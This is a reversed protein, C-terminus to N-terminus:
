GIRTRTPDNAPSKSYYDNSYWDACWEMANGHMDYLGWANPAFSGVPLTTGLMQGKNCGGSFYGDYNAKAETLCEGTNFLTTTGGRCAYEWEAETPLRYKKGTQQSLWQCYAIADDWTVNIVPRMGRGWNEEDAPKSHHTAHCFADYQEFTVEYKGMKFASLTVQHQGESSDRVPEDVPSGMIFTGAPISVM